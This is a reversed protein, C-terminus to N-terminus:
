MPKGPGFDAFDSDFSNARNRRLPIPSSKSKAITFTQNLPRNENDLLKNPKHGMEIGKKPPVFM